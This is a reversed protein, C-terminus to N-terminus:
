FHRSRPRGGSPLRRHLTRLGRPTEKGRAFEELGDWDKSGALAKIKLWWFRRDSIKFDLRATNAARQNGLRICQRVTDVLSLGLFCTNGTQDELDLQFKRLKAFEATSRSEFGHEKTQAFSDSARDLLRVIELGAAPSLRAGQGARATVRETTCRIAELLRMEAVGEFVGMATYIQELLEPEKRACYATFLARAQPRANLSALFDGLPLTRYMRFLVLYVLDTDGSELAKLLARQEEGLSLLLPVQEAACTEFDLLLAALNRRGIAQAHSAIAAYRVGAQGELKATLEDRLREDPMDSSANIKACAWHVLVKDTPLGLVQSIRLALLHRRANVLRSILVPLSLAEMQALTLPWGIDPARLTNLVRLKQCTKLLLDKPVTGTPCFARGYCAAKLLAAQRLPDLEAAAAGACTVVAEPLSAWLGGSCSTPARRRSTSCSGRMTCCRGQPPPASASCM